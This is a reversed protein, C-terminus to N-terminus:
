RKFLDFISKPKKNNTSTNNKISMNQTEKGLLKNVVFMYDNDTLSLYNKGKECCPVKEVLLKGLSAKNNGNDAEISIIPDSEQEINETMATVTVVLNNGNTYMVSYRYRWYDYGINLSHIFEGNAIKAKLVANQINAGISQGYCTAFKSAIEKGVDLFKDEKADTENTRKVFSRKPFPTTATVEASNKFLNPFSHLDYTTPFVEGNVVWVDNINAQGCGNDPCVLFDGLGHGIGRRNATLIGGWATPVMLNEVNNPVMIAWNQKPSPVTKIKQWDMQGDTNCKAKLTENTIPTGDAFTYTSALKGIDIAWTEGVTGSLIFQMDQDTRYHVQELINNCETGLQPRCVYIEYSKKHTKKWNKPDSAKQMIAEMATM